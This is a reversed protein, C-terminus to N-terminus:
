EVGKDLGTGVQQSGQKAMLLEHGEAGARLQKTGPAGATSCTLVKICPLLRAAAPLLSTGAQLTSTMDKM